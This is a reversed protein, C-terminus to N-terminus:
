IASSLILSAAGIKISSKLPVFSKPIILEKNKCFRIFKARRWRPIFGFDMEEDKLRLVFIDHDSITRFDVEM